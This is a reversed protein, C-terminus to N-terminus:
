KSIVNNGDIMIQFLLLAGVRSSSWAWVFPKNPSIKPARVNGWATGM